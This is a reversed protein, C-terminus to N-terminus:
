KLLPLTCPFKTHCNGFVDATKCVKRSSFNNNSPVGKPNEKKEVKAPPPDVMEAWVAGMFKRRRMWKGNITGLEEEEGGEELATSSSHPIRTPGM